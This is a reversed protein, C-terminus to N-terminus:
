NSQTLFTEKLEGDTKSKVFGKAHGKARWHRILHPRWKFWKDCDSCGFRREESHSLLHSNFNMKRRFGKGCEPCVLNYDSHIEQHAKLSKPNDFVKPCKDCPFAENKHARFSHIRLQKADKFKEGCQECVQGKSLHNRYLHNSLNRELKTVYKCGEFSCPWEKDPATGHFVQKHHYVASNKALLKGCIDCKFCRKGEENIVIEHIPRLSIKTDEIYHFKTKHEKLLKVSKYKKDCIPCQIQAKPNCIRPGHKVSLLSLLIHFNTSKNPCTLM